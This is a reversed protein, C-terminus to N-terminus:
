RSDKERLEGREKRKERNSVLEGGGGGDVEGSEGSGERDRECRKKPCSSLSLSAKEGANV